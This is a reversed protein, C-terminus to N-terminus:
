IPLERITAENKRALPAARERGVSDIPENLPNALRGAKSERNVAV